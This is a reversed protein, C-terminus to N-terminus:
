GKPKSVFLPIRFFRNMRFNFKGRREIDQDSGVKGVEDKDDKAVHSIEESFVKCYGSIGM